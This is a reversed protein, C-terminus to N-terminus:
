RRRIDACMARVSESNLYDYHVQSGGEVPPCQNPDGFLADIKTIWKNPVMSFEEISVTKNKLSALDRGNWECLYSDFTYCIDDVKDRNM